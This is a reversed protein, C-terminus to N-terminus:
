ALPLAMRMLTRNKKHLQTKQVFIRTVVAVIVRARPASLIVLSAVGPMSSRAGAAIRNSVHGGLRGSVFSISLASPGASLGAAM